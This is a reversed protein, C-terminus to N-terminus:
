SVTSTERPRRRPIPPEVACARRKPSRGASREAGKRSRDRRLRRQRQTVPSVAGGQLRVESRPVPSGFSPFPPRARGPSGLASAWPREPGIGTTGGPIPPRLGGSSNVDESRRRRSAGPRKKDKPEAPDSESASAEESLCSASGRAHDAAGESKQSGGALRRLRREPFSFPDATEAERSLWPQRWARGRSETTVSARGAPIPPWRRGM